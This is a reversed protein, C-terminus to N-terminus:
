RSTSAPRTSAGPSLRGQPGEEQTQRLAQRPTATPTMGIASNRRRAWTRTWFFYQGQAPVKFALSVYGNGLSRDGPLGGRLESQIHGHPHPQAARADNRGGAGAAPAAVGDALVGLHCIRLAGRRRLSMAFGGFPEVM